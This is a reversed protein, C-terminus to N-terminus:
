YMPVSSDIRKSWAEIGGSLNRVTDFGNSRLIMQGKKSRIGYHCIVVIEKDRPVEDIRDPLESLPILIGGLNSIDFEYDERVDLLTHPQTKRYIAYEEVSLDGLIAFQKGNCFEDYDILENITRHEGCMPCDPNKKLSYERFEVGLSYYHLVRGILPKGIGLLVKSAETAMLTGIVGPVVGLVGDDNCNPVDEPNPPEPYLCRYCPGDKFGFCSVQGSFRFLSGSIFPVGSLLSADNVLYRTAFNDSGDIVLDYGSIIEIANLSTLKESHLEIEINSNLAQIRSQAENIKSKGVSSESFLIQRQLNTADVTDFDLLGIAGVGAAALYLAVPSGLGGTGIILVRAKKLKEQGVVGVEPLALHRAYRTIETKNLM